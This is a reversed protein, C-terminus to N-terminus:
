ALEEVTLTGLRPLEDVAVSLDETPAIISYNEVGEVGYVVQGLHALLVDQGLREGSFWDTLANSVKQCVQGANCNEAAKVRVTVNVSKETPAIVQVDVAIERREEFWTQVQSLLAEDPLGAQTAVVVDVTGIGRNRPLVAAAAVESFSMAGQHYFAANAGNPLRQFTELVRQRLEEDDEEERGGSFPAPNNVWAVGVPAVAMSLVTGASVNGASGTEVARASIDVFTEGAPLIGEKVTEFRVLGATMCVTGAPITLDTSLVTDVGFRLVGEAKAAQHRSVGRLQAHRDLYEGAATQPFCQRAVWDAQVRLSYIQAAVAYLRVALDGSGATELGTKRAFETMMGSYIEEITV